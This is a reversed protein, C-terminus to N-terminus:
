RVLQEGVPLKSAVGGNVVVQHFTQRMPYGCRQGPGTSKPCTMASFTAGQAGHDRIVSGCNPCKHEVTIITPTVAAPVPATSEVAAAVEESAPKGFLHFGHKM